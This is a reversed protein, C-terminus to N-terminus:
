SKIRGKVFANLCFIISIFLAIRAIFDGWKVYFTEQDNLTIKARIAIPEDYRTAQLIDGRQNLFASIGTNASRAISRRTEIARLSAYFLHQRHGATNDWWGDNTMIFAAQANGDRIYGNFYEGFVSEYCIVPAINAKESTFSTRKTQVGLGATTGDLSEILPELFFLAKKFPFIEPGPVLKSKRYTQVPIAPDISLQTALNMVEYNITQGRADRQRTAPTLAEGPALDYYANVGTVLKLQPYAAFAEYLRRTNSNATINNEQVFGYSTEPFVLYDVQEDLLPLSLAIFRELQQEDPISFKLYHPEYNPQVVVVDIQEGSEEYNYYILLSVLMPLLLLLLPKIWLGTSLTGAQRAQWWRLLMINALWIWLGGGFVGTVTYWQVLSPYEAFGNGLTLWPWTIEWQLHIYEFTLWYTILAAYGLKPMQRYTITYLLWPLLMLGSNAFNAVMGAAFSTNMVWYTAVINWVVLTHFVYGLLDRKRADDQERWRSEVLLLPIWAIWLLFPLPLIDPFGVGLLLGSLSALALPQTPFVVGKRNRRWQRLLVFGFWFSLLFVLPRYGWLLELQYLRYMDYGVIAAVAMLVLGSVLVLRTSPVFGSAVLTRENKM